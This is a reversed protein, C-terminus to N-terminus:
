EVVVCCRGLEKAKYLRDDSIKLLDSYNDCEQPYQCIGASFSLRFNHKKYSVVKKSLQALFEETIQKAKQAEIQPMLVCFEEGGMRIVYGYDKYHRRLNKAFFILAVDGAEHGYQDNVKKFFDIDLVVGTMTNDPDYLEAIKSFARRNYLDTLSDIMSSVALLDQAKQHKSEYLHVLLWYTYLCIIIHYYELGTVKNYTTVAHEYVGLALSVFVLSTYFGAKKGLFGYSLPPIILIWVNMSVTTNPQSIIFIIFSFIVCLYFLSIAFFHKYLTMRRFLLIGCLSLVVLIIEMYALLEKNTTFNIYIYFLCIVIISLLLINLFIRQEKNILKDKEISIQM